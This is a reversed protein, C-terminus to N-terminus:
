QLHGDRGGTQGTSGAPRGLARYQWGSERWRDPDLVNRGDVINRQTVVQALEAPDAHSFEPWETLLLVVDADAAAEGM